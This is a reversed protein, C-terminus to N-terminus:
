DFYLDLVVVVVVEIEAVVVVVVVAVEVLDIHYDMEEVLNDVVVEIEAVLEFHMHSLDFEQYNDVEVVLNELKDLHVEVFNDVVMLVWYHEEVLDFLDVEVVLNQVGVTLNNMEVLDQHHDLVRHVLM